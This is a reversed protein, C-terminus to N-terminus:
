NQSHWSYNLEIPYVRVLIIKPVNERSVAEFSSQHGLSFPGDVLLPRGVQEVWQALQLEVSEDIEAGIWLDTRWSHCLAASWFLLAHCNIIQILQVLFVLSPQMSTLEPLDRLLWAFYLQHKLLSFMILSMGIRSISQLASNWSSSAILFLMSSWTCKWYELSLSFEERPALNRWFTAPPSVPRSQSPFQFSPRNQSKAISSALMMVHLTQWDSERQQYWALLCPSREVASHHRHWAVRYM